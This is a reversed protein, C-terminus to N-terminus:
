TQLNRLFTEFYKSYKKINVDLVKEHVYASYCPLDVNFSSLSFFLEKLNEKKFFLPRNKIVESLLIKKKLNFLKIETNIKNEFPKREDITFNSIQSLDLNIKDLINLLYRLNESLNIIINLEDKSYEKLLKKELKKKKSSFLIM